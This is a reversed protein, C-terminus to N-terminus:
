AHKSISYEFTEPINNDNVWRDLQTPKPDRTERMERM